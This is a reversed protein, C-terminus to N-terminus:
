ADCNVTGGNLRRRAGMEGTGRRAGRFPGKLQRRRGVRRLPACLALGRRHGSQVRGRGDSRSSGLSGDVESADLVTVSLDGVSEAVGVSRAPEPGEDGALRILFAVGAASIAILCGLSLLLLTRTRM